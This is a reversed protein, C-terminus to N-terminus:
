FQKKFGVYFGHPLVGLVFPNERQHAYYATGLGLAFGALVDTQWHSQSKM